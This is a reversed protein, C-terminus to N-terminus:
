PSPQTLALRSAEAWMRAQPLETVNFVVIPRTRHRLSLQM